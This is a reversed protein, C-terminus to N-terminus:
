NSPKHDEGDWAKVNKVELGGKIPGVHEKGRILNQIYRDVSDKSFSARMKSWVKKKPSIALVSPYGAGGM